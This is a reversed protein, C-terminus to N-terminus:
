SCDSCHPSPKLECGAERHRSRMFLQKSHQGAGQTGQSTLLKTVRAPLGQWCRQNVPGSRFAGALCRSTHVSALWLRHGPTRLGTQGPNALSPFLRVLQGLVTRSLCDHQSVTAM